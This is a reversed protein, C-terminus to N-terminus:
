GASKRWVFEMPIHIHRRPLNPNEIRSSMLEYITEGVEKHKREVSALPPFLYKASQSNNFGIVAVDSPVKYGNKKLWYITATALEDNGCIFSDFPCKGSSFRVKLFNYCEDPLAMDVGQQPFAHHEEPPLNYKKLQEDFAKWKTKNSNPSLLLAPSKRGSAILHNVANKIAEGRTWIIQDADIRQKMPSILVPAPFSEFSKPIEGKKTIGWELAMGQVCQQLYSSLQMELTESGVSSIFTTKGENDWFLKSVFRPVEAPNHSGTLNFLLAVSNSKGSRLTQALQNPAYGMEKAAKQIREQTEKSYSITGKKSRLAASAVATSVQCKNAIDKITVTM